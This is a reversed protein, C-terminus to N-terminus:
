RWDCRRGNARRSPWGREARWGLSPRAPTSRCGPLCERALLRLREAIVQEARYLGALFVCRRRELTDAVVDGAALELMLAAEILESSVNLLKDALSTLEEV